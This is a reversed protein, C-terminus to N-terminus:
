EVPRSKASASCAACHTSSWRKTVKSLDNALRAGLAPSRKTDSNFDYDARDEIAVRRYRRPAKTESPKFSASRWIRTSLQTPGADVAHRACRIPTGVAHPWTHRWSDAESHM